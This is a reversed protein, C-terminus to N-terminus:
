FFNLQEMQNELHRKILSVDIPTLTKIDLTPVQLFVLRRSLLLALAPDVQAEKVLYGIVLNISLVPTDNVYKQVKAVAAKLETGTTVKTAIGVLSADLLMTDMQEPTTGIKAGIACIVSDGYEQKSCIPEAPKQYASCATLMMLLACLLLTSNRKMNGGKKRNLNAKRYSM